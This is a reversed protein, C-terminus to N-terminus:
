PSFSEQHLVKQLIDPRDTIMADVGCKKLRRMEDEDNVTWVWVKKHFYRCYKLLLPHIIHTCPLITDVKHPCLKIIDLVMKFGEKLSSM